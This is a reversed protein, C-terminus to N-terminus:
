HAGGAAPASLAPTSPSSAARWPTGASACCFSTSSADTGRPVRIRRCRARTRSTSRRQRLGHM